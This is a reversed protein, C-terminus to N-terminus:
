KVPFSFYSQDVVVKMDKGTQTIEIGGLSNVFGNNVQLSLNIGSQSFVNGNLKSKSADSAHLNLNEGEQVITDYMVNVSSNEQVYGTVQNNKGNQFIMLYNNTGKQQATISNDDGQQVAMIGNNNGDQSVQLKNRDGEAVIGSSENNTGPSSFNGIGSGLEFVNQIVQNQPLGNALYGLQFSLLLNGSGIQGVLQENLNGQQFTYSQNTSATGADKQQNVGTKNQDGIQQTLVFNSKDQNLTQFSLINDMGNTSIQHIAENTGLSLNNIIEQSFCQFSNLLCLLLIFSVPKM